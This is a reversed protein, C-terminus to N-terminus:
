RIAEFMEIGYIFELLFYVNKKDQYATYYGVILPHCVTGL